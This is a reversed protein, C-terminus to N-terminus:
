GDFRQVICYERPLAQLEAAVPGRVEQGTGGDGKDPKQCPLSMVDIRSLMVKCEPFADFHAALSGFGCRHLWKTADVFAQLPAKPHPTLCKPVAVLPNGVCHPYVVCGDYRPALSALVAYGNGPCPVKMGYVACTGLPLVGPPVAVLHGNHVHYSPGVPGGKVSDLYVCNFDVGTDFDGFERYLRVMVYRGVKGGDRPRRLSKSAVVKFSKLRGVRRKFLHELSSLLRFSDDFTTHVNFDLDRDSAVRGNRLIGLLTGDTPWFTANVDRMVDVSLRYLRRLELELPSLSFAM